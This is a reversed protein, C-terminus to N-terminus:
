KEWGLLQMVKKAVVQAASKLGGPDSGLPGAIASLLAWNPTCTSVLPFLRADELEIVDLDTRAIQRKLPTLEMPRTLAGVKHHSTSELGLAAPVPTYPQPEASIEYDRVGDRPAEKVQYPHIQTPIVLRRTTPTSTGAQTYGLGLVAIRDPQFQRLQQELRTYKVDGPDVPLVLAEGHDLALAYTPLSGSIRQFSRSTCTRYEEELVSLPFKETALLATRSTLPPPGGPGSPKQGRVQELRALLAMKLKPYGNEEFLDCAQWQRMQYPMECPELKVPFLFSHEEPMEEMRRMAWKFERQVYGEKNVSTNSLFLIMGQARDKAKQIELDWTQGPLLEQEDFWFQVGPFDQKLRQWVPKVRSRDGSAYSIFFMEHAQNM